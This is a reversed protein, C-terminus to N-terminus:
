ALFPLDLSLDDKWAKTMVIPLDEAETQMVVSALFAFALVLEVM